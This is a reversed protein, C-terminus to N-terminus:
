IVQIQNFDRAQIIFCKYQLQKEKGEMRKVKKGKTFIVRQAVGEVM